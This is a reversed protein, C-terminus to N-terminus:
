INRNEISIFIVIILTYLNKSIKVFERECSESMASRQVSQLSDKLSFDIFINEFRHSIRSLSSSSRHRGTTFFCFRGRRASSPYLKSLRAMAFVKGDGKVKRPFFVSNAIRQSVNAHGHRWGQWNDLTIAILRIRVKGNQFKKRFPRLIPFEWRSHLPSIDGRPHIIQVSFKNRM